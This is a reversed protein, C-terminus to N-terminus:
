SVPQGASQTTDSRAPPLPPRGLRSQPAHSLICVGWGLIAWIPWFFGAGSLAWIAILLVNVVVYPALEAVGLRHRKAAVLQRPQAGADVLAPLGVLAAALEDQTRAAYACEIRQELEDFTLRGDGAHRRLADIHQERERDSARMAVAHPASPVSM